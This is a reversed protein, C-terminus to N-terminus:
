WPEYLKPHKKRIDEVWMYHPCSGLDKDRLINEIKNMSGFLNYLWQTGMYFFIHVSYWIEGLSYCCLLMELFIENYGLHNSWILNLM